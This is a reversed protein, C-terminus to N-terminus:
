GRIGALFLVSIMSVQENLGLSDVNPIIHAVISKLLDMSTMSALELHIKTNPPERLLISNSLTQLRQVM